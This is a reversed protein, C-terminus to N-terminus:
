VHMIRVDRALPRRLVHQVPDNEIDGAISARQGFADRGASLRGVASNLDLVSAADDSIATGARRGDSRIMMVSQFQERQVGLEIKPRVCGARLHHLRDVAVNEPFTNEDATKM